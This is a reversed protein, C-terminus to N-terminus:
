CCGWRWWGIVTSWSINSHAYLFDQSRLFVENFYRLNLSNNKLIDWADVIFFKCSPRFSATFNDNGFQGWTVHADKSADSRNQDPITAWAGVCWHPFSQLGLGRASLRIANRPLSNLPHWLFQGFYSFFALAMTGVNLFNSCKNNPRSCIGIKRDILNKTRIQVAPM